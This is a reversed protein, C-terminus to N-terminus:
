RIAVSFNNEIESAGKAKRVISVQLRQWGWKHHPQEILRGKKM